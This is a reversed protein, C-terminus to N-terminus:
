GDITEGSRAAVRVKSGDKVEFRVRTPKGDKPDRLAIREAADVASPDATLNLVPIPWFLGTETKMNEAVGLADGLNMFGDLPSFYGAGLMVANAAAASSLLMSPLTAAEERLEDRRRGEEVFRPNLPASGHAPIM